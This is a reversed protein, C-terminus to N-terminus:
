CRLGALTAVLRRTVEPPRVAIRVWEAGLGPFTDARRVAFGATRLRERVGHGPRALVFPAVGPVHPIALEDLADTLVRRRLRIQETRRAAEHRADQSCCAIMAAAAT